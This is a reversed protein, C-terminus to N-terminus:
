AIRKSVCLFRLIEDWANEDVIFCRYLFLISSNTETNRGSPALSLDRVRPIDKLLLNYTLLETCRHNSPVSIM